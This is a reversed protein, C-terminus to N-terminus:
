RSFRPRIAPGVLWLAVLLLSLATPLWVLSIVAPRATPQSDLNRAKVASVLDEPRNLQLYAGGSEDALYRPLDEELSTYATVGHYQHYGVLEGDEAYVPIAAPVFGGVGAAIVRIGQEHLKRILPELLTDEGSVHSEGGDSVLIVTNVAPLNEIMESAETLAWLPSSGEGRVAYNKMIDDLVARIAQHDFTPLYVEIRNTYLVLGFYGDPYTTLLREVAEVGIALRSVGQPGDEALMSRSTDVVIVANFTPSQADSESELVPEAAAIAMLSISIAFVLLAIRKRTFRSFRSLTQRKGFRNIAEAQFRGVLFGALLFAPVLFVALVLLWPLNFTVM